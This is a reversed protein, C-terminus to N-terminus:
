TSLKLDRLQEKLLNEHTRYMECIYVFHLTISRAKMQCDM